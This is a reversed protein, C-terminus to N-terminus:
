GGKPLTFYFTAGQDVEAEAWARGGHRRVASRVIALGIGTGGFEDQSHLRKFIGFLMDEYKMDYGAGNDKVYYVREGDKDYSGIEIVAKEKRATFKMANSILNTFIQRALTADARASLLPKVSVEITRDRFFEERLEHCVPQALTTMDIDVLNTALGALRALKLLDEILQGMKRVNDNIIGIVRRGNEDLQPAYDESLVNAFGMVARLPAKLDHSVSYSFAEMEKVATLLEETRRSVREELEMNLKNIKEEAQKRDTIDEIALLILDEEDNEKAAATILAAIKKPVRMQTANLSMRRQGIQAFRHELEYGEVTKKEPLIERLLVLLRPINWQGDGLDPLSRGLTDEKTVKFTNYFSPNASIVRLNKDLVLFPERLTAIIRDSYELAQEIEQEDGPKRDEM